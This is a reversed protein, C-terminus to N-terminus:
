PMSTQIPSSFNYVARRCSIDRRSSFTRSGLRSASVKQASVSVLGSVCLDSVSVLGLRQASQGLRSRSSVNTRRSVTELGLHVNREIPRHLKGRKRKEEMSLMFVCFVDTDEAMQAIATGIEAGCQQGAADALCRLDRPFSYRM